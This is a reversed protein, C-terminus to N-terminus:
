PTQCCLSCRFPFRTQSAKPARFYARREVYAENRDMLERALRLTMDPKMAYMLGRAGEFACNLAALAQGRRLAEDLVERASALDGPPVHEEVLTSVLAATCWDGSGAADRLHPAPFAPFESSTITGGGDRITVLLGATGRTEVVVAVGAGVALERLGKLRGHSYKFIHCAKLGRVFLDMSKIGSPEFVVLSGREAYRQALEINSTAVRDFYFVSPVALEESFGALDRMRLPRYTVARSGCSPCVRSFRHHVAGGMKSIIEQFVIPTRVAETQWLYRTDVAWRRLDALIEDAASDCGIRGIPFAEWGLYSLITLVNGCSGGAFRLDPTNKDAVRVIDLALFGAGFCSRPNHRNGCDTQTM